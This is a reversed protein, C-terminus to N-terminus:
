HCSFLEDGGRFNFNDFCLERTKDTYGTNQSEPEVLTFQSGSFPILAVRPLFRSIEVVELYGVNQVARACFPGLDSKWPCICSEAGLSNTGVIYLIPKIDGSQCFLQLISITGSASQSAIKKEAIILINTQQCPLDTLFPSRENFTHENVRPNELSVFNHPM